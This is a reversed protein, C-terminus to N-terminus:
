LSTIYVSLVPQIISMALIHPEEIPSNVRMGTNPDAYRVYSKVPTGQKESGYSAFNSGNLDLGLIGAEALIKGAVNAGQGGISEMRIEYYGYENKKPLISKKSM